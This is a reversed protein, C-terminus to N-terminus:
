KGRTLAKREEEAIQKHGEYWFRLRSVPMSWLEHEGFHFRAAVSYLM